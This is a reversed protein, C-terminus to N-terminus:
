NQITDKPLITDRNKTTDVPTLVSDKKILVPTQSHTNQVSDVSNSNTSNTKQQNCGKNVILAIILATIITAAPPVVPWAPHSTLRAFYGAWTLRMKFTGHPEDKVWGKMKLSHVVLMAKSLRSHPNNALNPNNRIMDSVFFTNLMYPYHHIMWLMRRESPLEFVLLMHWAPYPFAKPKIDMKPPRPTDKGKGDTVFLTKEYAM